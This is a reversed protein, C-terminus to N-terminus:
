LYIIIFHSIIFATILLTTKITMAKFTEKALLYEMIKEENANEKKIENENEKLFLAIKLMIEEQSHVLLFNGLLFIGLSTTLVILVKTNTIEINTGIFKAFSLALIGPLLGTLINIPSFKKKEGELIKKRLFKKEKESLKEIAKEVESKEKKM